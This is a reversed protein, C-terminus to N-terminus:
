FVMLLKTKFILKKNQLTFKLVNPNHTQGSEAFQQSDKRIVCDPDAVSSVSVEKTSMQRDSRLVLRTGCQGLFIIFIRVFVSGTVILASTYIYAM